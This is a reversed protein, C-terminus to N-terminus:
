DKLGEFSFCQSASRLDLKVQGELHGPEIAVTELLNWMVEAWDQKQGAILALNFYTDSLKPDIQLANKFQVRATELDGKEFLVKGQELYQQPEEASCAVLVLTLFVALPKLLRFSKLFSFHYM